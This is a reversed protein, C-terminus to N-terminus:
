GSMGDTRIQPLFEQRLGRHGPHRFPDPRVFIPHDHGARRLQGSRPIDSQFKPLLRRFERGSRTQLLRIETPRGVVDNTAVGKVLIAKVRHVSGLNVSVYTFAEEQQACWGTASNMGSKRTEYNRRESTANFMGDPIKGSTIVIPLVVRCEPDRVCQIPASTTPIYRRSRSAM